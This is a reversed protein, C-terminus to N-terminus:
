LENNSILQKSKLVNDIAVYLEIEGFLYTSDRKNLIISDIDEEKLLAQIIEVKHIYVSSYIVVWNDKLLYTNNISIM